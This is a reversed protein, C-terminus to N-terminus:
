GDTTMRFYDVDYVQCSQNSQGSVNIWTEHDLGLGQPQKCWYATPEVNLFTLVLTPFAANLFFMGLCFFAKRHWRGFSGIADCILDKPEAPSELFSTDEKGSSM